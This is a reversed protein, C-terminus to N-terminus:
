LKQYQRPTFSTFERFNRIFHSQDAFNCTYAINTLSDNSNKILPLSREIRLKRKYAGLTCAFYFPFHKSLTIPSVGVAQALEALSISENWRDNLLAHVSTIWSPTRKKHSISKAFAALQYFLMLLSDGSYKDRRLMEHYIKLMLFKVDPSKCIANYLGSETLQCSELLGEGVDMSVYNVAKGTSITEHQEGAHLFVIDAVKREFEVATRKEVCGGAIFFVVNTNSHFHMGVGEANRSM